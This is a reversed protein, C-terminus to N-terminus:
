ICTKAQTKKHFDNSSLCLKAYCHVKSPQALLTNYGSLITFFM